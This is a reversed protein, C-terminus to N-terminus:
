KLKNTSDLFDPTKFEVFLAMLDIGSYSKPGISVSGLEFGRGRDMFWCLAKSRKAVASKDTFDIEAYAEKIKSIEQLSIELGRQQDTNLPRRSQLETFRILNEKTATTEKASSTNVTLSSPDVVSFKAIDTCASIMKQETSKSCGTILASICFITAALHRKDM